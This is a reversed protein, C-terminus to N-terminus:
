PLKLRKGSGDKVGELKRGKVEGLRYNRPEKALVDLVMSFLVVLRPSRTLVPITFYRLASVSRCIEVKIRALVEEVFLIIVHQVLVYVQFPQFHHRIGAM